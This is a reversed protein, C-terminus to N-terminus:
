FGTHIRKHGRLHSKSIFSKLCIDCKHPKLRSHTNIHESLSRKTTYTKSCIDCKHPKVGNHIKLHASLQPKSTFTNKQTVLNHKNTFSNDQFDIKHDVESHTSCIKDLAKRLPLEEVLIHRNTDMIAVMNDRSTIKRGPTEGDDPSRSISPPLDGCLEDEWILDELLVEEPKVKLYKELKVRSATDNQFCTNRFSDLLELNNVCSLCITDSLHDGKRIPLQCCTWIRQALGTPHPDDHISVFSEAPAPCLCLRCEM